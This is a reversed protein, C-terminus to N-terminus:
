FIIGVRVPILLDVSDGGVLLAPNIEYFISTDTLVQVRGLGFHVTPGAESADANSVPVHAGVGGLAYTLQEGRMPLNVIASVQPDFISVADDTGSLIFGTLGLGVAVSLDANVPASVRGRLGIGVGDETSLLGNLGFGYRPRLDEQAEAARPAAASALFLLALFLPALALTRRAPKATM